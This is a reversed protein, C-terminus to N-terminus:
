NSNTNKKLHTFIAFSQIYNMNLYQRFIEKKEKKRKQEGNKVRDTTSHKTSM